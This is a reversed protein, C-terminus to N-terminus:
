ASRGLGEDGPCVAADVRVHNHGLHPLRAPFGFLDVLDYLADTRMPALQFQESSQMVRSLTPEGDSILQAVGVLDKIRLKDSPEIRPAGGGRTIELLWYLQVM